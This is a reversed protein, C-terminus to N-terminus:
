EWVKKPLALLLGAVAKEQWQCLNEKIGPVGGFGNQLDILGKIDASVSTFAEGSEQEGLEWRDRAIPSSTIIEAFSLKTAAEFLLIPQRHEKTLVLAQLRFNKIPVSVGIEETLERAAALFPSVVSNCVIGAQEIQIRDKKTLPILDGRDTVSWKILSLDGSAANSWLGAQTGVNGRRTIVLKNDSTKLTVHVALNNALPSTPCILGDPNETELLALLEAKLDNCDIGGVEGELALNTLLFTWYSTRSFWLSLNKDNTKHAELRGLNGNFFSEKHGKKVKYVENLVHYSKEKLSESFGISDAYKYFEPKMLDNGLQFKSSPFGFEKKEDFGLYVDKAELKQPYVALWKLGPTLDMIGALPSREELSFKQPLKGLVVKPYAPRFYELELRLENTEEDIISLRKSLTTFSKEEIRTPSGVELGKYSLFHSWRTWFDSPETLIQLEAFVLYDGIKKKFYLHFARHGGPLPNSVYDREEVEIYNESGRAWRLKQKKRVVEWGHEKLLKKAVEKTIHLDCLNLVIIKGGVLDEMTWINESIDMKGFFPDEKRDNERRNSENKRLKQYKAWLSDFSKLRSDIGSIRSTGLKETDEAIKKLCGYFQEEPKQDLIRQYDKLKKRYNSDGLRKIM